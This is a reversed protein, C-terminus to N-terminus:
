ATTKKEEKGQAEKQEADAGRDMYTINKHTVNEILIKVLWRLTNPGMIDIEYAEGCGLMGVKGDPYIRLLEQGEKSITWTIELKPM